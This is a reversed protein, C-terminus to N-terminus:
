PLADEALDKWVVCATGTVTSTGTAPVCLGNACTATFQGALINSVVDAECARVASETAQFALDQDRLNGAIREELSNTSMATVGIITMVLLLLLSVVLVAGHEGKPRTDVASILTRRRAM